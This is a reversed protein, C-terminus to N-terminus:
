ALWGLTSNDICGQILGTCIPSLASMLDFETQSVVGHDYAYPAYEPYQLLPDVLGNGIALGRLNIRIGKTNNMNERFIKASLAPIYHGAYSEGTVYFPLPAYKPYKTFFTQFFEYMDEAMEAENTVGLDGFDSYSYGTNTPQDIWLVNANTNWSYPNISLSLDENITYPGNENFLAVLSSCGPGGTM